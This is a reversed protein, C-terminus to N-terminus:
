NTRSLGPNEVTSECAPHPRGIHNKPGRANKIILKSYWGSHRLVNAPILYCTKNIIDTNPLLLQKSCSYLRILFTFDIVLIKSITINGNIKTSNNELYLNAPSLDVKIKRIFAQDTAHFDGNKCCFNFTIDFCQGLLHLALYGFLSWTLFNRSWYTFRNIITLYCSKLYVRMSNKNALERGAFGCASTFSARLKSFTSPQHYLVSMASFM